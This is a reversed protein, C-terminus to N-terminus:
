RSARERGAVLPSGPPSSSTATHAAAPENGPGTLDRQRLAYVAFVQALDAACSERAANGLSDQAVLVVVASRIGAVTTHAECRSVVYGALEVGAVM